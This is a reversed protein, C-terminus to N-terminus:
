VITFLAKFATKGSIFHVSVYLYLYGQSVFAHLIFLRDVNDIKSSM